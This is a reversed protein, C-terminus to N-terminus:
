KVASFRKSGDAWHTSSPLADLRELGARGEYRMRARTPIATATHHYSVAAVDQMRSSVVEGTALDLWGDGELQYHVEEFNFGSESPVDRDDVKARMMVHACPAEGVREFGVLRYEVDVAMGLKGIPNPFYRKGHWTDGPSVPKEPYAILLYGLSERLPVSALLKHAPPPGRLSILKPNNLEDTVVLAFPKDLLTRPTLDQKPQAGRLDIEVKSDLSTRLRDDGLELVHEKGPPMLRQRRKLASLVLTQGLEGAEPTVVPMARYDIEVSLKEMLSDPEPANKIEKTVETRGEYTMLVQYLTGDAPTSKPRLEIPGTPPFEALGAAETPRHVAPATAKPEPDSACALFLCGAVWWRKM